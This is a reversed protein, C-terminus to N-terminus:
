SWVWNEIGGFRFSGGGIVAVNSCGFIGGKGGGGGEVVGGASVWAADVGGCETWM